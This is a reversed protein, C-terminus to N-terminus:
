RQFRNVPGTWQFNKKAKVTGNKVPVESLNVNKHDQKLCCRKLGDVPRFYSM